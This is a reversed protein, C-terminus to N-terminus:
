QIKVFGRYIMVRSGAYEDNLSLVFAGGSTKNQLRSKLHNQKLSLKQMHGMANPNTKPHEVDEYHLYQKVM